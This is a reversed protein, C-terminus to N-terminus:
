GFLELYTEASMSRIRSHRFAQTDRTIIFDIGNLEAAARILGDEFDPEDSYASERCEAEGFPLIACTEIFLRIIDRVKSEPIAKSCVYYADKM